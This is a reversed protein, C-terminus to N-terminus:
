RYAPDLTIRMRTGGAVPAAVTQLGSQNLMQSLESIAAADATSMELTWSGSRYTMSKVGFKTSAGLTPAARGLLPLADAAAPKGARHRLEANQRAMANAASEADGVNMVGALRAQEVLAESLRHDTLSLSAWQLLLALLQIAVAIGAIALAAHFTTQTAPKPVVARERAVFDPAARSAEATADAWHWSPAQVFRVGTERTWTGLKSPDDGTSVHVIDPAAGASRAATLAAELESPLSGRVDEVAFASGDDRRIFGGGGSSRYWRWGDGAPALACEPVISTVRVGDPALAAILSKAAIAVLVRGHGDRIALASEELTSAMQDEVAYRVAQALRARPMPPLSLAVVRTAAAALVIEVDTERPWRSRVDRGRSIFRGDGAYRTWEVDTDDRLPEALFIRLM